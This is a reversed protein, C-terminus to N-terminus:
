ARGIELPPGVFALHEDAALAVEDRNMDIRALGLCPAALWEMPPDLFKRGSGDTGLLLNCDADLVAHDDDEGMLLDIDPRHVRAILQHDPLHDAGRATAVPHREDFACRLSLASDFRLHGLGSPGPWATKLRGDLDAPAAENSTRASRRSPRGSIRSPTTGPKSRGPRTSQRM